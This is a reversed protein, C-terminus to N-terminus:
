PVVIVIGPSISTWYFEETFAGSNTLVKLSVNMFTRGSSLELCVLLLVNTYLSNFFQLCTNM